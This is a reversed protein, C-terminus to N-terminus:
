RSQGKSAAYQVANVIHEYGTCRCLNGDIGARIETETPNANQNLLHIVSLIMGPTCYGCQAGHEEWFGEQVVHLEEDSGVGEITTLESGGAQVAFMTCSKASAGDILVTCAGCQSTDCGVHTGTLGLTERLFHVLLLRPEVEAERVEGNVTMSVPMTQSM